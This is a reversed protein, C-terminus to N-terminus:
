RCIHKAESQYFCCLSIFRMCFGTLLCICVSSHDIFCHLVFIVQELCQRVSAFLLFLSVNFHKMIFGTFPLLLFTQGELARLM